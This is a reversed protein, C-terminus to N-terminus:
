SAIVVVWGHVGHATMWSDTVTYNNNARENRVTAM